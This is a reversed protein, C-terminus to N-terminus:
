TEGRLAEIVKFGGHEAHVQGHAFLRRLEGEYPLHRNAVMWFRGGPRLAAAAARIFQRGLDPEDARGIHFPPNSIVFDYQHKLGCRVDHWFFQLEPKPANDSPLIGQLNRRALDLASREAEYLHLAEVGACHQQLHASLYGWGAGLDAGRGTLDNPLHAALLASGPDVRDWSFVGPASYLSTDPVLRPTVAQVWDRALDADVRREGARSWIARCKNKSLSQVPGLLRAADDQLSRAGENNAAAMLITGQAGVHAAAEVLLARTEDRQRSPLLMVLDFREDGAVTTAEIGSETLLDAYPKFSQVCVVSAGFRQLLPTAQARLFLSRGVRPVAVSGDLMPAFLTDLLAANVVRGLRASVRFALEDASGHRSAL